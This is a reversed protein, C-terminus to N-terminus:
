GEGYCDAYDEYLFHSDIGVVWPSVTNWEIVRNRCAPDDPFKVSWPVNRATREEWTEAFVYSQLVLVGFLVILVKKM